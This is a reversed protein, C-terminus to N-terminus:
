GVERWIALSIVAIFVGGIATLLAIADSEIVRIDKKNKIYNALFLATVSFVLFLPSLTVALATVKLNTCENNSCLMMVIIFYCCISLLSSMGVVLVNVWRAVPKQTRFFREKLEEIISM